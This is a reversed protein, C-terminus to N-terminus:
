PSLHQQWIQDLAEAAGAAIKLDVRRTPATSDPNIEVRPIGEERARLVPPNRSGNV